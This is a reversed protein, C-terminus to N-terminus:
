ADRGQARGWGAHINCGEGMYEARLRRRRAHPGFAGGKGPVRNQTCLPGAAPQPAVHPTLPLAPSLTPARPSCCFSGPTSPAAPPRRTKGREKHTRASRERTVHRSETHRKGCLPAPGWATSCSGEKVWGAGGEAPRVRSRRREPSRRPLPAAQASAERSGPLGLAREKIRWKGHAKSCLALLAAAAVWPAGPASALTSLM